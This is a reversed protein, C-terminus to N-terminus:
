NSSEASSTTETPGDSVATDPAVVELNTTAASESADPVVPSDTSTDLPSVILGPEESSNSEDPEVSTSSSDSTTTVTNNSVAETSTAVVSGSSIETSQTPGSDFSVAPITKGGCAGAETFMVGSAVFMCVPQGTVRDYITIGTQGVDDAKITINEVTVADVILTKLKVIDQIFEAGLSALYEILSNNSAGGSVGGEELKAIRADLSEIKKQQAQIGALLFTSFKYVDV